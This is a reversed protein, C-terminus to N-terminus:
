SRERFFDPTFYSMYGLSNTFKQLWYDYFVNSKECCHLSVKEQRHKSQQEFLHLFAQLCLDSESHIERILSEISTQQFARLQSILAVPNQNLFVFIEREKSGVSRLKEPSMGFLLGLFEKRGTLSLENTQM